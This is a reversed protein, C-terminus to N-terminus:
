PKQQVAWWITLQGGEAQARSGTVPADILELARDAAHNALKAIWFPSVTSCEILVAQKPAAALVGDPGLWVEHSAADDAVMSLIVTSGNAADAPTKAIRAGHAGLAEAKSRTRNFVTLPFGAKLLNAAMGSGMTGLGLLAVSAQTM